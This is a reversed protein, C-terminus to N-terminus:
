APKRAAAYERMLKADWVPGCVLEAPVPFGEAARLEDLAERTVRLLELVEHVGVVDPAGAAVEPKAQTAGASWTYLATKSRDPTTEEPPNM